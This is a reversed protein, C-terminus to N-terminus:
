ENSRIKYFQVPVFSEFVPMNGDIKLFEFRIGRAFYDVGKPVDYHKDFDEYFRDRYPDEGEPKRWFVIIPKGIPDVNVVKEELTIREAKDTELERLNRITM